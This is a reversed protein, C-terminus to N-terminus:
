GGLLLLVVKLETGLSVQFGAVDEYFAVEAQDSMDHVVSSAFPFRRHFADPM